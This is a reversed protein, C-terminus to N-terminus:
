IVSLDLKNKTEKMINLQELGQDLIEERDVISMKKFRETQESVDGYQELQEILSSVTLRNKPGVPQESKIRNKWNKEIYFTFEESHEGMYQGLKDAPITVIIGDINKRWIPIGNKIIDQLNITLEERSFSILNQSEEAPIEEPTM